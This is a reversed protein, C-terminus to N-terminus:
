QGKFLVIKNSRHRISDSKNIRNKSFYYLRINVYKTAIAKILLVRHNDLPSQDFSHRVLNVFINKNLLAKLISTVLVEAPVLKFNNFIITEKMVKESTMCIQM